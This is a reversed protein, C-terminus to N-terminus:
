SRPDDEFKIIPKLATRGLAKPNLGRDWSPDTSEAGVLALEPERPRQENERRARDIADTLAEAERAIVARRLEDGLIVDFPEALEGSVSYEEDILLRKFFALNFQRRMSGSAESYARQCDGARKLARELNSEATQFDAAIASLRGEAAAAESAIRDQESKLLDLPIADAYHAALLKSREGDLKRLRREQVSRERDADTRLKALEDSLFARLRVVEDDPLQM